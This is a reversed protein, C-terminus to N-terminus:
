WERFPRAALAASSYRRDGSVERGIWDPREFPQEERDLEIEALVLGENADLFEDVEWLMGGSQVRYRTKSVLRGGCLQEIMYRADQAPIRYEMEPRSIGQAPGKVTLFGEDGLLRARVVAGSPAAALYGQLCPLGPGAQKRWGDGSVLFKREIEHQM